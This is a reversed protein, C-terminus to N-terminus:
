FSYGKILIKKMEEFVDLFSLTNQNNKKIFNRIWAGKNILYSFDDINMFIECCIIVSLSIKYCIFFRCILNNYYYHKELEHIVKNTEM